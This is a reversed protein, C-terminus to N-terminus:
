PRASRCSAPGRRERRAAAVVREVLRRDICHLAPAELRHHAVAGCDRLAGSHPNAEFQLYTPRTEPGRSPVCRLATQGKAGAGTSASTRAALRHHGCRRWRQSRLVAWAIARPRSTRAVRAASRRVAADCRRHSLGGRRHLEEGQVENRQDVSTFLMERCPGCSRTSASAGSSWRRRAAGVAGPVARTRTYGFVMLIPAFMIVLAVVGFCKTFRGTLSSSFSCRCAVARHLRAARVAADHADRTGCLEERGARLQQLYLFRSVGLDARRVARHEVPLATRLGAHLRRVPQRRAAISTATVSARGIRPSRACCAM